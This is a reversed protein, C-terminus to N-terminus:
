LMNANSYSFHHVKIVFLLAQNSFDWGLEEKQKNLRDM